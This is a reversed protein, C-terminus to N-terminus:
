LLKHVPIRTFLVQGEHCHLLGVTRGGDTVCLDSYGPHADGRPLALHYPFTSGGDRSMCIEMDRRNEKEPRSIRSLLVTATSNEFDPLSILGAECAFAPPLPMPQVEDWTSGGDRSKTFAHETGFSRLAWFVGEQTECLASENAYAAHGLPRTHTWHKGHDDSYLLSACYGREKRPISVDPGRHWLQLLLRGTYPSKQLQIGHTPGPLHFSTDPKETILHTLDQPKSWTMGLDDSHTLYLVTRTNKHNEAFFLLVRGTMADYIPTPNVLCRGGGFLCVSAEFTKGGDTSRRMVIDHTEDADKGECRAEAFALVTSPAAILSFVHYLSYGGEGHRWLPISEFINDM